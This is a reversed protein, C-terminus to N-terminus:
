IVGQQKDKLVMLCFQWLVGVMFGFWGDHGHEITVLTCLLLTGFFNLLLLSRDSM